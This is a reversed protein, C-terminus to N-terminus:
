LNHQRLMDLYLMKQKKLNEKFGEPIHNVDPLTDYDDKSENLQQQRL